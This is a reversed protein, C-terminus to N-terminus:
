KQYKHIVSQKGVMESHTWGYCYGFEHLRARRYFWSYSRTQKCLVNWLDITRWGLLEARGQWHAICASWRAQDMHGSGWFIAITSLVLVFDLLVLSLTKVFSIRGERGIDRSSRFFPELDLFISVSSNFWRTLKGWEQRGIDRWVTHVIGTFNGNM